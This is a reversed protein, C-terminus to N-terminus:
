SRYASDRGTWRGCEVLIVILVALALALVSAVSRRRDLLAVLRRYWHANGTRCADPATRVPEDPPDADVPAAGKLARGAEDIEDKMNRVASDVNGGASRVHDFIWMSLLDTRNRDRWEDSVQRKSVLPSRLGSVCRRTPSLAEDDAPADIREHQRSVASWTDVEAENLAFEKRIRARLRKIALGVGRIVRGWLDIVKFPTPSARRPRVHSTRSGKQLIPFVAVSWANADIDGCPTL